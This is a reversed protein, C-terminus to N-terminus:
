DRKGTGSSGIITNATGKHFGGGVLEDYDPIVSM